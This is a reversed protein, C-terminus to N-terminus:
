SKESSKEAREYALCGVPSRSRPEGDDYRGFSRALLRPTKHPALGVEVIAGSLFIKVRGHYRCTLLLDDYFRDCRNRPPTKQTM